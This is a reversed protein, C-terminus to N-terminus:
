EELHPLILFSSIYSVKSIANHSFAILIFFQLYVNCMQQHTQKEHTYLKVIRFNSQMSSVPMSCILINQTTDLSRVHVRLNGCAWVM